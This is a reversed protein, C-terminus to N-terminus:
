RIMSDMWGLADATDESLLPEHGGPLVAIKVTEGRDELAKALTRTASLNYDNTRSALYFISGPRIQGQFERFPRMHGCEVIAGRFLDPRELVNGYARCAGGSFGGLIVSHKEINWKAAVADLLALLHLMDQNGPTENTISPTSAIIWGFRNAANKWRAVIDGANGHPDLLLMLPKSKAFDSKTRGPVFVCTIGSTSKSSYNIKLLDNPSNNAEEVYQNSEQHKLPPPAITNTSFWRRDRALLVLQGDDTVAKNDQLQVNNKVEWTGNEKLVVIQGGATKAIKEQSYILDTPIIIIVFFFAILYKKSDCHHM